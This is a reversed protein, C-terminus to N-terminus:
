LNMERLIAEFAPKIQRWADRGSTKDLNGVFQGLNQAEEIAQLRPIRAVTGDALKLLFPSIHPHSEVIQLIARQVPKAEVMVPLIGILKLEHNIHERLHEYGWPKSYLIDGVGQIAHQSLVLPALFFDATMLAVNHCIDARPGTDIV